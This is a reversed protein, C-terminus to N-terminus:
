KPLNAEANKANRLKEQVGSLIKEYGERKKVDAETQNPKEKIDNIKKEYRKTKGGFEKLDKKIDDVVLLTLSHGGRHIQRVSDLLTDRVYPLSM